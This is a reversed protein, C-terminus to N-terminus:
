TIIQRIESRSGFRYVQASIDRFNRTVGWLDVILSSSSLNKLFILIQENFIMKSDNGIVIIEPNNVELNTSYYDSYEHLDGPSLTPDWVEIKIGRHKLKKILNLSLGERVDNTRPNGKFAAGMFRVVRINPQAEAFSIVKDLALDNLKENLKRGKLIISEQGLETEISELFLYTDKSLCPGGVPGPKPIKGRPYNFNAIELIEYVDLDLEESFMAIENAIAFSSDRWINCILKTFEATESNTAEIVQFGLNTLLDNGRALDYSIPAGLIQPLKDLENLALGEATREPAFYVKLDSRKSRQIYSNFERTTGVPVTSRLFIDASVQLNKFLSTVLEIISNLRSKDNKNTNICIFLTDFILDDLTEVFDLRKNQLALDFLQELGPEYIGFFKNRFGHLKSLNKEIITVFIGESKLLKAALTLGVFGGGVILIKRSSINNEV